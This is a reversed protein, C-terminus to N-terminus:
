QAEKNDRKSEPIHLTVNRHISLIIELILLMALCYGGLYHEEKLEKQSVQKPM